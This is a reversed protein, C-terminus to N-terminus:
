NKKCTNKERLVPILYNSEKRKVNKQQKKTRSFNENTSKMQMQDSLYGGCFFKNAFLALFNM